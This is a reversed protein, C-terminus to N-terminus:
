AAFAFDNESLGMDVREMDVMIIKDKGDETVLHLNDLNSDDHSVGPDILSTTVKYLPQYFDKEDLVVGEPSALCAGGIDSLIM